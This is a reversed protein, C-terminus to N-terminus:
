RNAYYVKVASSTKPPWVQNTMYSNFNSIWKLVAESTESFPQLQARLEPTNQIHENTKDKIMKAARAQSHKSNMYNNEYERLVFFVVEKQKLAKNQGGQRGREIAQANLYKLGGIKELQIQTQERIMIEIRKAKIALGLNPIGLGRLLDGAYDFIDLNNHNLENAGLKADAERYEEIVQLITSEEQLVAVSDTEVHGLYTTVAYNIFEDVMKNFVNTAATLNDLQQIEEVLYNELEDRVLNTFFADPNEIDLPHVLQGDIYISEIENATPQDSAM